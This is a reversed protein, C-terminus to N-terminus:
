GFRLVEEETVLVDVRADNPEHPLAALVQRSFAVAVRLAVCEKQQVFRDYFGGGRGLRHGERDFARGPLIVVGVAALPVPEQVQPELVGLAAPRLAAGSDLRVALLNEGGVDTHPVAVVKGQEWLGAILPQTDVEDPLALFTMVVHAKIVEPLALVSQAVRESKAQREGPSLGALQERMLRRVEAKTAV